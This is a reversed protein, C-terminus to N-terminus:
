VLCGSGAPSRHGTGAAAEAAAFGYILFFPTQPHVASRNGLDIAWAETWARFAARLGGLGAFVFRHCRRPLLDRLPPLDCAYGSLVPTVNRHGHGGGEGGASRTL